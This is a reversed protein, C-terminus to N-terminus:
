AMKSQQIKIKMAIKFHRLYKKKWSPSFNSSFYFDLFRSELPPYPQHTRSCIAVYWFKTVNSSFVRPVLSFINGYKLFIKFLEFICKNSYNAQLVEFNRTSTPHLRSHAQLLKNYSFTKEINSKNWKLTLKKKLNRRSPSKQENIGEYYTSNTLYSLM